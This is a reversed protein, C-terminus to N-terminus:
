DLKELYPEYYKLGRSLMEDVGDATITAGTLGDVAHPNDDRAGGKVVDISTFTGQEDYIKKGEFQGKWAPNDKIEAGLGPTEAKHDFAVGAITALDENLAISGWIEDWLGSGRVSLIYYKNGEPSSYVYLPLIQQTLPKKKEKALDVHEAKGGPYGKEIVQEPSLVNGEMDLVIQEVSTIFIEAVQEDKLTKFDTGLHDAVASLIARKNYVAENKQHIPKLGFSLYALIVAVVATM